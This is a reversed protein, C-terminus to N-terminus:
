FDHQSVRYTDEVNSVFQLQVGNVRPMITRAVDFLGFMHKDRSVLTVPREQQLLWCAGVIQADAKVDAGFCRRTYAVEVTRGFSKSDLAFTDELNPAREVLLERRYALLELEDALADITAGVHCSLYSLIEGDDNLSTKNSITSCRQARLRFKEIQRSYEVVVAEPLYFKGARRIAHLLFDNAKRARDIDDFVSQRSGNCFRECGILLSTDFAVTNENALVEELLAIGPHMEEQLCVNSLKVTHMNIVNYLTL